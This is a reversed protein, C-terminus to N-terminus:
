IFTPAYRNGTIKESDYLSGECGDSTAINENINLNIDTTIGCYVGIKWMFYVNM